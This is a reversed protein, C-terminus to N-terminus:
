GKVSVEAVEGRYGDGTSPLETLWVALYRTTVPRRLRITATTGAGDKSGVDTLDSNSTPMSDTGPPAALLHVSTPEGGLRLTVERLRRDGGLDLMLGVGPKLRGLDATNYTMTRWATSSDGDIAESALDPNEEQPSGYPDFDKVAAIKVPRLPAAAAAGSDQGQDPAGTDQHTQRFVVLVVITAVLLAAVLFAVRLWVRGEKGTGRPPRDDDHHEFPWMGGGAYGGADHHEEETAGVVTTATGGGSTSRHEPVSAPAGAVAGAGPEAGAGTGAGAGPGAGAGASAGLGAGALDAAAPQRRPGPAFLPREPPEEYPPLPAQGSSPRDERDRHRALDTADEQFGAFAAAQTDELPAPATSAQTDEFRWAETAELDGTEVGDSADPAPPGGFEAAGDQVRSGGAAVAPVVATAVGATDPGVTPDPHGSLDLPVAGAPDGVFDSLAAAVEVATGIPVGRAHDKDLGRECLADLARPVGARVQRPRLVHDHERPASPMTSASVGPWRGTLAFYLLGVLDVVDGEFPDPASSDAARRVLAANVAYGILKVAGSHTVMVAEPNLRGHPVGQAHCSAVSEAVERVLWAARDPSLPGQQVMLDLSLGSGWENVVWTIGDSDDCDLVRLIRPDALTASTRAAELLAPARDDTSSVAHLAVSRALVTDTARWFRAGAVETLLDDLRYRGALVAGPNLRSPAM